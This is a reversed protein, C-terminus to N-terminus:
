RMCDVLYSMTSRPDEPQDSNCNLIEKKPKRKELKSINKNRGKEFVKSGSINGARTRKIFQVILM